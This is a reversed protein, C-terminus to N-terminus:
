VLFKLFEATGYSALCMITGSILVGLTVALFSYRKPLDFLAAVLSGTWAGTGPLPIAVFLMLATFVGGSMRPRTTYVKAVGISDKDCGQPTVIETEFCEGRETEGTVTEINKIIRKKNKEAKGRLWNVMPQCAKFRYLYDLIKPIFLLIFPVPLLNGVVSLIYNTYFPVDMAAGAPIAGRLEIIPLMSIIFIYLEKPLSSFLKMLKQIM